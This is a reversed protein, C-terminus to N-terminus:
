STRSMGADQFIKKIRLVLEDPKFPKAIFDTAGLRFAELITDDNELASIMIIPLSSKIDKRIFDVLELGSIFPMIIDAVVLDPGVEPILKMAEKGNKARIIEFGHKRLRYELATLMIEEDECIMVKM